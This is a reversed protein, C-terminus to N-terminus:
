SETYGYSLTNYEDTGYAALGSEQWLVFESIGADLAMKSCLTCYPKGAARILAGEKDVRIFYLASGPLAEGRKKLADQIARIEAHICCTKDTVRPHYATKPIHCRSEGSAGHPPSNFGRGVIVGDKVIVAGCRADLCLAARALSAAEEMYAIGRSEEEGQLLRM